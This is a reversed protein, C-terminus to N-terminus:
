IHTMHGFLAVGERYEYETERAGDMKRMQRM